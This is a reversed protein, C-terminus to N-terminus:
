PLVQVTLLLASHLNVAGHFFPHM